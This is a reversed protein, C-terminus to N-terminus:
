QVFGDFTQPLCDLVSVKLFQRLCGALIDCTVEGFNQKHVVKSRCHTFFLSDIFDYVVILLNIIHFIM